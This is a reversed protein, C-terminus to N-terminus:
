WCACAWGARRKWARLSSIGNDVTIILDPSRTAAVEVIEPTLGYGFAFRNPVLYDVEAAGMARLASVTLASSTAGDADFDGIVLIREGHELARVLLEVAAAVGLLTDPRYLGQLGTDLESEDAVHRAAFVRRLVPHDISQLKELDQVAVPRTAITRPARSDVITGSASM